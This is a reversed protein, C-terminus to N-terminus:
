KEQDCLLPHSLCTSWFMPLCSVVFHHWWEHISVLNNVFRCLVRLHLWAACVARQKLYEFIYNRASNYSWQVAEPIPRFKQSWIIRHVYRLYTKIIFECSKKTNCKTEWQRINGQTYLRPSWPASSWGWDESVSGACSTRWSPMRRRYGPLSCSSPSHSITQLHTLLYYTSYIWHFMWTSAPGVPLQCRVSCMSQSLPLGAHSLRDCLTGPLGTEKHTFNFQRSYCLFRSLFSM